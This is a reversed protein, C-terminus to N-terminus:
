KPALRAPTERELPFLAAGGEAAFTRCEGFRANDLKALNQAPVGLRECIRLAAKPVFPAILVAIVRLAEFLHWLVNGLEVACDAGHVDANERLRRSLAWPECADAYRNAAGVLAFVSSLAEHLAFDDVAAVVDSLARAAAAALAQDPEATVAARCVRLARHKVAIATTRQLLNGLKGALESAQAEAVRELRFDSDKTSHVHRLLYYRVVDSGFSQVLAFPDFGNGLSKGIKNGDLTVYGHVKVRDPLPLGASALLAPWYVAHFRLVDKGILHERSSAGLWFRSLEVTPDPFGLVSLYNALADFWVYIVQTPDGPVPLGWGRARAHSRSVSFDRLGSRVFSVVENHRERPEVRLAGRDLAERLVPEYRSLRFFWNIEHVSELPDRHLPCGGNVLEAESLFAECGGCYLGSYDSRYLDGAAACRNWLETVAPPHRPDNSTRLFGDLEIDLARHLRRYIAAHEAVLEATSVGREAAARANKLSHDDTGGSLFVARGRQRHHRSLADGLVLEFAHGVHPAANVYPIATSLFLPCTQDNM